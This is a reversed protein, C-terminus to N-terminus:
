TASVESTSSSKVEADSDIMVIAGDVRALGSVTRLVADQRLFDWDQTAFQMWQHELLWQQSPGGPSNLLVITATRDDWMEQFPTWFETNPEVTRGLGALDGSMAHGAPLIWIAGGTGSRDIAQGVDLIMSAIKWQLARSDRPFLGAGMLMAKAATRDHSMGALRNITGRVFEVILKSGIRVLILGSGRSEVALWHPMGGRAAHSSCLLSHIALSGDTGAAVVLVGDKAHAPSLARIAPPSLPTASELRFTHPGPIAPAYFLLVDLPIGEYKDLSAWFVDELMRCMEGESPLFKPRRLESMQRVINLVTKAISAADMM